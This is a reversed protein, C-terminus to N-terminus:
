SRAQQSLLSAASCTGVSGSGFTMLYLTYAMGQDHQSGFSALEAGPLGTIGIDSVHCNRSLHAPWRPTRRVSRFSTGDINRWPGSSLSLRECGAMATRSSALFAIM